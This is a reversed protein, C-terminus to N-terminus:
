RTFPGKEPMPPLERPDDAIRQLTNAIAADLQPDEGRMESGPDNIIYEEAPVGKGEIIWNGDLGWGGFEPVITWSNDVAPRRNWLWIWGGYTRTGILVWDDLLTTNYAMTEGDSFTAGNILVAVHGHYSGHPKTQRGGYRSAQLAFIPSTMEKMILEAVNGGSNYRDDLIMGPRNKQPYYNKGFEEMGDSAMDPLYVYGVKGDSKDDVYERKDKTWQLFRITRESNLAPVIVERADVFSPKENLTLAVEDHSQNQLLRYMNDDAHLRRGNIALLYTGAGTQPDSFALPSSGGRTGPEPNLVRTIRYCDNRPDPEVDIGLYGVPVVDPRPRDGSGVFAHGVRLEASMERMLDQLDQRTTIRDIWPSFRELVGAWDTDHMDPDYFFERQKRWAERLIQTWEERPNSEIDWGATNIQSDGDMSLSASGPDGHYWSGNARVVLTSGDGSIEYSSIGSAVESSERDGLDFARLTSGSYGRLDNGGIGGQQWEIFYLKDGAAQLGRYNGPLEPIHVMRDNIGDWDIEIPTVTDEDESEVEDDASDGDAALIWPAEPIGSAAEDGRAIFPSPVDERLRFLALTGMRDFLFTSHSYNQYPNYNRDTVCYLYRGSPDWAPAYTNFRNDGLTHTDGTELDYVELHAEEEEGVERVFALYRSDPSWTYESFEWGGESVETRKGSEVNVIYLIQEGSDYAIWKGDPSPTINYKWDDLPKNEILELDGNPNDLRVIRDEGTEDTILVLAGDGNPLFHPQKERSGSRYTWQRIIGNGNVPLTFIDGRSDVAMRSGDENLWWSDVYDNPDIFRKNSTVLDSPVLLDPVSLQGSGIDFVTLELGHLFVIKDDHLKPTRADFDTFQTEARNDSGDPLMSFINDRGNLNTIYYIRGNTHWMPHSENMESHSILEFEADDTSGVWIKEAGGGHYQNWVQYARMPQLAVLEGDPEFAIQAGRLFPMQDPFGGNVSVTYLEPARYPPVRDAEFIVDGDPTFGVVRDSSGHYTLQKPQGGNAPIVYVDDNGYYEGTFAIWQGDPSFAPYREEGMHSTLRTALGGNLNGIMIDGSSSFVLTSGHLDPDRLYGKEGALPGNPQAGAVIPLTFLVALVFLVFVTTVTSVTPRSDSTARPM